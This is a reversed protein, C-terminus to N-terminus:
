EIFSSALKKSELINQIKTLKIIFKKYKQNLKKKKPIPFPFLKNNVDYKKNIISKRWISEYFELKKYKYIINM